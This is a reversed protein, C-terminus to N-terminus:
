LLKFPEYFRIHQIDFALDRGGLNIDAEMVALDFAGIVM